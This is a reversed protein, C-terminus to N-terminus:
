PKLAMPKYLGPCRLGGIVPIRPFEGDASEYTISVSITGTGQTKQLQNYLHTRSLIEKIEVEKAGCFTDKEDGHLLGNVGTGILGLTVVAFVAITGVSDMSPLNIAPSQM